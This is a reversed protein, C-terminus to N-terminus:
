HKGHILTVYIYHWRERIMCLACRPPLCVRQMAALLLEDSILSKQKLFLQLPPSPPRDPAPGPGTVRNVSIDDPATRAQASKMRQHGQHYSVFFPFHSPDKIVNAVKLYSSIFILLPDLSYFRFKYKLQM